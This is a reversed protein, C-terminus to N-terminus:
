PRAGDLGRGAFIRGKATGASRPPRVPAGSAFGLSASAEGTAWVDVLRHVVDEKMQLGLDYRPSGPAAAASGRFRGRRYRIVPEIASLLKASTM